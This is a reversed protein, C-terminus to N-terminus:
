RLRRAEDLLERDIRTRASKNTQTAYLRMEKVVIRNGTGIEGFYVRGGETVEGLQFNDLWRADIGDRRALVAADNTRRTRQAGFATPGGFQTYSIRASLDQGFQGAHEELADSFPHKAMDLATLGDCNEIGVLAGREVLAYAVQEFQFHVANHLPTNGHCNPVNVEAGAQVLRIVVPVHGHSAAMHLATDEAINTASM